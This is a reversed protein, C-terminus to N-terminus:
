ASEGFYEVYLDDTEYLRLRNLTAGVLEEGILDWLVAALNESTPIRDAFYPTDLNLHKHDFQELVVEVAAQLDVLNIVMGTTPDPAGWVAVELTYNHGHGNPLACLGFVRRNEEESWEDRYYRHSSSFDFRRSILVNGM